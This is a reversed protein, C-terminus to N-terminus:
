PKDRRVRGDVDYSYFRTFGRPSIDGYGWIKLRLTKTGVWRTAVVYVHHNDEMIKRENTTVRKLLEEWVNIAPMSADVYIISCLSYDSGAYDTLAFSKSDPNWLVDVHREYHLLTRQMKLRRDELLVTHYPETDSDVNILAYLGDPSSARSHEPFAIPRTKLEQGFSRFGCLSFLLGLLIIGTKTQHNM